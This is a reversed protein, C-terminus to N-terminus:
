YYTSVLQKSAETDLVMQRIRPNLIKANLTKQYHEVLKSKSVFTVYGDFGLEFSRKCAIAFLHPGVGLFEKSKINWPASEVLHINVWGQKVEYAILGQIRDDGKITLKKLECSPHKLYMVWDFNNWGFEPGIQKLDEKTAENVETPYIEGSERHELCPTIRDIIVDM